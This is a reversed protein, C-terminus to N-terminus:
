PERKSCAICSLVLSRMSSGVANTLCSLGRLQAARISRVHEQRMIWMGRHEDKGKCVYCLSMLLQCEAGLRGEENTM